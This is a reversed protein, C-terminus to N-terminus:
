TSGDAELTVLIEDKEVAQREEVAVQKVIGSVPSRIENEMKMAEVVLLGDGANVRQGGAVEVRVILGPMPARIQVPGATTARDRILSRLLQAREDEVRVHYTRDEITVRYESEGPEILLEYSRGEILLSFLASTGVRQMEAQVPQGDLLVETTSGSQRIEVEHTADGVTALFKM